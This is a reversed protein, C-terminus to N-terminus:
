GASSRVSERESEAVANRIQEYGHAMWLGWMLMWTTRQWSVKFVLVMLVAVVVAAGAAILKDDYDDSLESLV